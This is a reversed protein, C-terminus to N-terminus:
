SAIKRRSTATHKPLKRSPEAGAHALSATQPTALEHLSHHYASSHPYLEAAAALNARVPVQHLYERVMEVDHMNAISYGIFGDQWVHSMTELRHEFGSKILGVTQDLTISQPTVVLHVHDPMVVFAHLKYHGLMRYHLLTDTFLEAVRSIEFIPRRDQTTITVFSVGARAPRSAKAMLGITSN